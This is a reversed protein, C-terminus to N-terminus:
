YTMSAANLIGGTLSVLGLFLAPGVQDAAIKDSLGPLLVRVLWYVAIQVVLAILGWVLCDALSQAHFIASAVPLAFGLLSLGLAIAAAVNNARILAFENHPTALTYVTLYVTVLVVATAFYTVFTPLGVFYEM